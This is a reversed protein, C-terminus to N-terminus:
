KIVKFGLVETSVEGLSGAKDNVGTQVKIFDIRPLLVHNGSADIAASIDFANWEGELNAMRDSGMNDAYGYEYPNLDWKQSVSNRTIRSKLRTGSLTYTDGEIWAPWYFDQKHLLSIHDVTGEAGRSDTWSVPSKAVSPRHYTVSYNRDTETLLTACGELEYWQDDPLGNGNADRMVWVIGPENSGGTDSGSNCYSNGAVVFDHGNVNLISEGVSVVIYGGFGGLSVFLGENLRKEAWLRAAEATAPMEAMGGTTADGIFQGPAPTYEWVHLGAPFTAEGPLVSNPSDPNERGEPTEGYIFEDKNCATMASVAAVIVLLRFVLRKM